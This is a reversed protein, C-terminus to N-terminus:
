RVSFPWTFYTSTGKTECVRTMAKQVCTLKGLEFIDSPSITETESSEGQSSDTANALKTAAEEMIDEATRFNGTM